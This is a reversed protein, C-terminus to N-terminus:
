PPPFSCSSPRIVPTWTLFEIWSPNQAVRALTVHDREIIPIILASQRNKAERSLDRSCSSASFTTSRCCSLSEHVLVSQGFWPHWPYCVTRIVTKHTKRRRSTCRSGCGDTGPCFRAWPGATGVPLGSGVRGTGRHGASNKRESIIKPLSLRGIDSYHPKLEERLWSLDLVADIKRLLHDPPVVDELCFEDSMGSPADTNSYGPWSKWLLYLRGSM